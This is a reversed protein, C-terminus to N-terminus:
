TRMTDARLSGDPERVDPPERRCIANSHPMDQKVRHNIDALKWLTKDFRSRFCRAQAVRPAQCRKPPINNVITPGLRPLVVSVQNSHSHRCFGIRLPCPVATLPATPKRYSTHFVRLVGELFNPSVTRIVYCTAALCDQEVGFSINGPKTLQDKANHRASVEGRKQLM